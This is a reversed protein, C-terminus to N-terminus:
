EGLEPHFVGRVLELIEEVSLLRLHVFHAALMGPLGQWWALSEEGAYSFELIVKRSFPLPTEELHLAMGKQLLASGENLLSGNGWAFVAGAFVARPEPDPWLLQLLRLSWGPQCSALLELYAEQPRVEPRDPDATIEAFLRASGDAALLTPCGGVAGLGQSRVFQQTAAVRQGELARQIVLARQVGLAPEQGNQTAKPQPM